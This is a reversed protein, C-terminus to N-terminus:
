FEECVFLKKYGCIWFKKPYSRGGFNLTLTLYGQVRLRFLKCFNGLQWPQPDLFNKLIKSLKQTTLLKKFRCKVDVSYRTAKVRLKLLQQLEQHHAQHNLNFFKQPKSCSLTPLSQFKCKVSGSNFHIIPAPEINSFQCYWKVM